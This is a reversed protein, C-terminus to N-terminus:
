GGARRRSPAIGFGKLSAKLAVEPAVKARILMDLYIRLFTPGHDQVREGHLHWTVHHALEHLVTSVNRGGLQLRKGDLLSIRNDWPKSMGDPGSEHHVMAPCKVKYHACVTKALARCQRLSLHNRDWGPWSNEWSYLAEGHPDRSSYAM